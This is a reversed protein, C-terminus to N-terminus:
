TGGTVVDIADLVLSPDTGYLKLEHAGGTLHVRLSQTMRAHLVRVSWLPGYEDDAQFEVWQPAGGDVSFACRLSYGAYPAHTPLAHIDVDADTDKPAFVHFTLAPAEQSVRALETVPTATRPEILAVAGNWGVGDLRRWQIGRTTPAGIGDEAELAIRGADPGVADAPWAAAVLPVAVDYADGGSVIRVGGASVGEPVREWDISVWLREWRAVSSPNRDIRLWPNDSELRLPVPEAGSAFLDVFRRQDPSRGIAPLGGTEGKELPQTQGEPMVVLQSHPPADVRQVFPAAFAWAAPRDWDTNFYPAASMMRRWKGGALQENYHRTDDIVRRYAQEARDAWDNAAPVGLAALSRSRWAALIKENASASARVPYLVLEFYADRLEPAIENAVTEARHVLDSFANLRQAVEDGHRLPDFETERSLHEPRLRHDLRYAGDLIAAIEDAHAPGFSQAAFSALWAHQDALEPREPDWALDLFYQMGKEMPKLDGVNVIWLRRCDFAYAKTMEQWIQAPPTSDLWIYSIPSGLYSLHYYVGAGGSRLQEEPSSLRRIYGHNDDPWVVTVDSPLRLGNDYIALTEKYPILAQPVATPDKGLVASLLTRQARIVDDLRRTKDDLTGGGPMASDHIGRMGVTWMNEFAANQRVRTRWYDLITDRNITWDWAGRGDRHWEDPNDRLLPECHSSGMVIAYDDAVQKNAPYHNFARTCEHMAPWCYNAKLRLLLEFVRAYTKPGIDGTEPEFTRAAWPKLGFDEDNLFIGRYQVKPSGITAQGSLHLAAQRAPTADAWWVWPSVGIRRSLEFVGFATGRRDSGAVVWATKVGPLPREVSTLLCSEWRGRVASVDLRGERVLRDIPASHGLTGVIVMEAKPQTAVTVIRPRAGTVHEVDGAFAEAAIQVVEADATDLLLATAQGDAVLPFSGPSPADSVTLPAAAAASRTLLLATGLVLAGLWVTGRMPRNM